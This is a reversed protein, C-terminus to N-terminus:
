DSAIRDNQSILSLRVARLHSGEVGDVYRGKQDALGTWGMGIAPRVAMEKVWPGFGTWRPVSWGVMMQDNAVM